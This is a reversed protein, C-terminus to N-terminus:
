ENDQEKLYKALELKAKVLAAYADPDDGYADNWVDATVWVADSAAYATVVFAAKTDVVAKQLTELKTLVSLDILQEPQQWEEYWYALDTQINSLVAKAVYDAYNQMDQETFKKIM